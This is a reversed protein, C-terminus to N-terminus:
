NSVINVVYDSAIESLAPEFSVVGKKNQLVELDFPIELVQEIEGTTVNELALKIMDSSAEAWNGSVIFECTMVKTKKVFSTGTILGYYCPKTFLPNYVTCSTKTASLKEVDEIDWGPIKCREPIFHFLANFDFEKEAFDGTEYEYSLELYNDSFDYEVTVKETNDKYGECTETIIVETVPAKVKLGNSTGLTYTVKQSKGKTTVFIDGFAFKPIGMTYKADYFAFESNPKMKPLKIDALIDEVPVIGDKGKLKEYIGSVTYVTGPYFNDKYTVKGAETKFENRIVVDLGQAIGLGLNEIEVDFHVSNGPKQLDKENAWMRRTVICPDANVRSVCLNYGKETDLIYTFIWEGTDRISASPSLIDSKENSPNQYIVPVSETWIMKKTDPSKLYAKAFVETGESWMAGSLVGMRNYVYQVNGPVPRLSDTLPYLANTDPFEVSGCTEWVGKKNLIFYSQKEAFAPNEEKSFFTNDPRNRIKLVLGNAGTRLVPDFQLSGKLDSICEVKDWREDNEKWSSWYIATKKLIEEDETEDTKQITAQTWVLVLKQKGGVTTVSGTFDLMNTLKGNIKPNEIVRKPQSFDEDRGYRRTSYFLTYCNDNAKLSLDPGIYVLVELGNMLFIQPKTGEPLNRVVTQINSGKEVQQKTLGAFESVPEKGGPLYSSDRLFVFDLDDETEVDPTVELLEEVSEEDIQVVSPVTQLAEEAEEQTVIKISTPLSYKKKDPATFSLWVLGGDKKFVKGPIIKQEKGNANVSVPKVEPAAPQYLAFGTYGKKVNSCKLLFEQASGEAVVNEAYLVNRWAFKTPNADNKKMLVDAEFTFDTFKVDQAFAAVALLVVALSVFFKKM